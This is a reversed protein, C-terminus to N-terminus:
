KKAQRGSFSRNMKGPTVLTSGRGPLKGQNRLAVPISKGEDGEAM